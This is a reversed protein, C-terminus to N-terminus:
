NFKITDPGSIKAVHCNCGGSIKFDISKTQHTATDTATVKIIDGDTSYDMKNADSAIIYYGQITNAYSLGPQLQKNSTVNFVSMSGILIPKGSNDTCLVGVTEFNDTCAQTGCATKQQTKKCSSLSIAALFLIILNKYMLLRKSQIVAVSLRM